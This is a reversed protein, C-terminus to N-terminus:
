MNDIYFGSVLLAGKFTLMRTSGQPPLDAPLQANEGAPEHSLVTTTCTDRNLTRAAQSELLDMM